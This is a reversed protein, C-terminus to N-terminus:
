ERRERLLLVASFAATLAQSLPVAAWTGWVGLAVPLVLLGVALLLPEGYILLYARRDAGTAYCYATTVRSLAAFPYGLLFLPLCAAVDRATRPSAGFLAATEGRLLFLVVMCALALVLAFVKKM